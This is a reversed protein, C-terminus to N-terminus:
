RLSTKAIFHNGVALNTEPFFDGVNYYIAEDVYLAKNMLVKSFIQFDLVLTSGIILLFREQKLSLITFSKIISLIAHYNKNLLLQIKM